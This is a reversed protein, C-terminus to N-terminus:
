RPRQRDPHCPRHARRRRLPQLRRPGNRARGLATRRHPRSRPSRHRRHRAPHPRPRSSRRPPRRGQTAVLRHAQHLGRENLGYQDLAAARARAAILKAHVDRIDRLTAHKREADIMRALDEALVDFHELALDANRFTAPTDLVLDRYLANVSNVPRGAQIRALLDLAKAGDGNAGIALKAFLTNSFESYKSYPKAGNWTSTIVPALPKGATHERMPEALDVLNLEGPYTAWRDTIGNVDAASAPVFFVRAATFATGTTDVFTAAVAGWTAHGKGRLLNDTSAGGTEDNVGLKGRLYTLLTRQGGSENRARGTGSDNSAGNFAVSSPMMLATYADLLTSKGTGSGGSLLTAEPHFPLRHHGQFGGWNVVQLSVLRWQATTTSTAAEELLTSLEDRDVLDAQTTSV